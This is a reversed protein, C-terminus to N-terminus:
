PRWSFAREVGLFATNDIVPGSTGTWSRTHTLKAALDLDRNLEQSYGVSM